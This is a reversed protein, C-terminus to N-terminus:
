YVTRPIFLRMMRVWSFMCKRQIFRRREVKPVVQEISERRGKQGSIDIEIPLTRFDRICHPIAPVLVLM